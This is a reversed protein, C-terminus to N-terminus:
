GRIASMSVSTPPPRFPGYGSEHVAVFAEWFEVFEYEVM